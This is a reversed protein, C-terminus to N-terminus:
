KHETAKTPARYVEVQWDNVSRGITEIGPRERSFTISFLRDFVGERRFTAEIDFKPGSVFRWRLVLETPSPRERETPNGLKSEVETTTPYPEKLVWVSDGTIGDRSRGDYGRAVDSMQRISVIKEKLRAQAADENRIIVVLVLPILLMVVGVVVNAPHVKISM